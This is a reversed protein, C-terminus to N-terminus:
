DTCCHTTTATRRLTAMFLQMSQTLSADQCWCGYPVKGLSMLKCHTLVVFVRNVM